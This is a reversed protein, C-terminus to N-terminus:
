KRKRGREYERQLEREEALLDSIDEAAQDAIRSADAAHDHVWQLFVETRSSRPTAKTKSARARWVAQLEEPLNASVEDDSEESRERKTARQKQVRGESTRVARELKRTEESEARLQQVMKGHNTALADLARARRAGLTVRAGPLVFRSLEAAAASAERLSRRLDRTRERIRKLAERAGRKIDRQGTRLEARRAKINARLEALRERVQRRRDREQEARIRALGQRTTNDSM